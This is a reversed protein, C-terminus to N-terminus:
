GTPTSPLLRANMEVTRANGCNDVEVSIDSARWIEYGEATIEVDYVFVESRAGPPGDGGELLTPGPFPHVVLVMPEQVRLRGRYTFGIPNTSHPVFGGSGADVVDIRIGTPDWTPCAGDDLIGCALGGTLVLVAVASIRAGRARCTGKLLM